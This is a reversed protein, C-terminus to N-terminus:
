IEELLWAPKPCSEPRIAIWGAPLPNGPRGNHHFTLLPDGKRVAQGVKAHVEIGVGLDLVDERSTRGGGMEMARIGLARADIGHVFGSAPAPLVEVHGAGPLRSFDDLAEPDGGNHAVWSRFSAMAAGSAVAQAVRDEAEGPTSATGGLLLMEAALRFSM